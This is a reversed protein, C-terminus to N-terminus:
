AAPVTKAFNIGHGLLQIHQLRLFNVALGDLHHLVHQFVVAQGDVPQFLVVGKGAQGGGAGPQLRGRGMGDLHGPLQIDEPANLLLTQPHVPLEPGAQGHVRCAHPLVAGEHHENTQPRGGLLLHSEIVLVKEADEAPQHFCRQHTGKLVLVGHPLAPIQGTGAQQLRGHKRLLQFGGAGQLFIFHGVVQQQPHRALELVLGVEVGPHLAGDAAGIHGAHARVVRDVQQHILRLFCVQGQQGLAHSLFTQM